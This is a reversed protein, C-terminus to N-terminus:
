LELYINKISSTMSDTSYKQIQLTRSRSAISLRLEDNVILNQICNSLSESNGVDFLLGTTDNKIVDSIGGVNSAIVPVGVSMAELLVMPLGEGYLSPLIFIDSNEIHSTVNKDFGLLRFNEYVSETKMYSVVKDQYESTEFDGVVNVIVRRRINEPLKSIASILVEIGKRARILGVFSLVILNSDFNKRSQKRLPVGNEVIRLTKASKLHSSRDIVSASVGVVADRTRNVFFSELLYKVRNKIKNETDELVPSHVHYVFKVDIGSIVKALKSVTLTLPSHCHVVDPLNERFLKALTFPQFGDLNFASVRENLGSREMFVGKKYLVVSPDYFEDVILSDILYEQVREAGAYFEGNIIQFVKVKM